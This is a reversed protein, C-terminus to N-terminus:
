NVQLYYWTSTRIDYTLTFEKLTFNFCKYAISYISAFQEKKMGLFKDIKFELGEYTLYLPIMNGKKDTSAIVDVAVAVNM